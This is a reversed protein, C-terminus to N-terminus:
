RGPGLAGRGKLGADARDITCCLLEGAYAGVRAKSPPPRKQCPRQGADTPNTSATNLGVGCPPAQNIPCRPGERSCAAQDVGPAAGRPTQLSQPPSGHSRRGEEWAFFHLTPARCPAKLLVASSARLARPSREQARPRQFPSLPLAGRGVRGGERGLARERARTCRTDWCACDQKVAGGARRCSCIFAGPTPGAVRSFVFCARGVPRARQKKGRRGRAAGRIGFAFQLGGRHRTASTPATAIEATKRSLPWPSRAVDWRRCACGAAQLREQRRPRARACFPTSPPRGAKRGPCRCGRGFVREERPLRAAPSRRELGLPAPAAQRPSKAFRRAGRPAQRRAAFLRLKSRPVRAAWAAALLWCCRIQEKVMVSGSPRAPPGGRDSEKISARPELGLPELVKSPWLQVARGGRGLTRPKGAGAWRALLNKRTPAPVVSKRASARIMQDEQHRHGRAVGGGAANQPAGAWAEFLQSRLDLEAARRWGFRGLSSSRWSASTDPGPRASAAQRGPTQLPRRRRSQLLHHLLRWESPRRREAACPCRM